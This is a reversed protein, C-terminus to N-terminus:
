NQGTGHFVKGSAINSFDEKSNLASLVSVIAAKYAAGGDQTGTTSNKLANIIGDIRATVVALQNQLERVKVVGGSDTGYLEISGGDRAIIWGGNKTYLAADGPELEPGGEYDIVPLVEVSDFNGGQCLVFVEGERAKAKFGYPFAEKKEVARSFVTEAQIRNDDYRKVFKGLSFINKIRAALHGEM